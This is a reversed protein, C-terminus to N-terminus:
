TDIHGKKLTFDVFFAILGQIVRFYFTYTMRFVDEERIMSM